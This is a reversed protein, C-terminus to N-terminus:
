QDVDDWGDKGPESTIPIVICVAFVIMAVVFIGLAILSM